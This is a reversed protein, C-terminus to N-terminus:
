KPPQPFLARLKEIVDLDTDSGDENPPNELKEALKFDEITTKGGQSNVITMMTMAGRIDDIPFGFPERETYDIWGALQEGTICELLYDPHPWGLM